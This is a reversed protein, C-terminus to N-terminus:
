EDTDDGKPPRGRRPKDSAAEPTAPVLEAAEGVLPRVNPLLAHHVSELEVVDGRKVGFWPRIM